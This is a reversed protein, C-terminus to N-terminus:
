LLLKAKRMFQSAIDVRRMPPYFEQSEVPSVKM